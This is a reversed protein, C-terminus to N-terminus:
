AIPVGVETAIRARFTEWDTGQRALVQALDIFEKTTPSEARLKRVDLGKLTILTWFDRYGQNKAKQHSKEAEGARNHANSADTGGKIEVAVKRHVSGGVEEDIRVDPDHHLTVLVRRGASNRIVMSSATEEEIHPQLLERLAVFVAATATKGIEVSHAGQFQAGLTLLPLEDLDRPSVSPAISVVLENLAVGLARCVGPLRRKQEKSLSGKAEMSKFGSWGETRYLSKASQGLLLRYYGLLKPATSLLLPTPFAFEGRIGGSALVKLGAAPAYRHLETDLDSLSVKAVASTLGDRLWTKRAGTLLQHFAIQRKASPAGLKTRKLRAM